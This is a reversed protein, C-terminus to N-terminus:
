NHGYLIGQFQILVPIRFYPRNQGIFGELLISLPMLCAHVLRSSFDSVLAVYFVLAMNGFIEFGALFSRRAPLRHRVLASIALINVMPLAGLALLGDIKGPDGIQSLARIAFLNM